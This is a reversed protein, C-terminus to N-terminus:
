PQIRISNYLVRWQVHRELDINHFNCLSDIKVLVWSWLVEKDDAIATNHAYVIHNVINYCAEAFNSVTFGDRISHTTLDFKRFEAYDLLRVVAIALLDEVSDKVHVIFTNIFMDRIERDTTIINLQAEPWLAKFKPTSARRAINHAKVAEGINTIILMVKESLNPSVWLGKIRAISHVEPALKLIEIM